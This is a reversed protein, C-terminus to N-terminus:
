DYKRKIFWIDSLTLGVSIRLYNERIINTNNGRQGFEISTNIISYQNSYSPPRMPLGFGVSVGWVPLDKNVKVYDQGYTFGARYTVRGWYSKANAINPLIQGGIHLKWSDQVSDKQGFFRYDSWKTQSLDAGLLWREGGYYMIGASYSAPYSIKGSEKVNKISDISTEGSENEEYTRVVEQRNATYNQKVGGTAGIRLINKKNVRITYQLGANGFLGGFNSTTSHESGYYFVSSSDPIFNRKTSYDRSGFLYGINFGLALNKIAFGTGTYVEYSGGNGEFLTNVSDINQLRENRELRYNIRTVPRLGINMGWNKKQSLPLGLQIYSIIPSASSFKRPPDIVKLTRSDVELAFDFTARKLKSYSAPNAFNVSIIDAYAASVGGIGRSMINQSPLEDGLGYRSYPSNETQAQLVTTALLAFIGLFKIKKYM